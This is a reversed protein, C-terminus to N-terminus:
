AHHTRIGMRGTRANILRHAHAESGDRMKQKQADRSHALHTVMLVKQIQVYVPKIGYVQVM